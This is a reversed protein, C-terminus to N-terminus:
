SVGAHIRKMKRAEGIMKVMYSSSKGYRKALQIYTLNAPSDNEIELTKLLILFSGTWFSNANSRGSM